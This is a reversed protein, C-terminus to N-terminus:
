LLGNWHLVIYIGLALVIIKLAIYGLWRKPFPLSDHWSKKEPETM